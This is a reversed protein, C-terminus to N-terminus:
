RQKGIGLDTILHKLHFEGLQTWKALQLLQHTIEKDKNQDVLKRM